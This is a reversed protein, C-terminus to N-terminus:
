SCEHEMGACSPSEDNRIIPEIVDGLLFAYRHDMGNMILIRVSVNLGLSGPRTAPRPLTRGVHEPPSAARESETGWKRAAGDGTQRAV